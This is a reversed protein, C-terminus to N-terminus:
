CYRVETTVSIGLPHMLSCSVLSEHQGINAYGHHRKCLTCHDQDPKSWWASMYQNEAPGAYYTYTQLNVHPDKTPWTGETPQVTQFQWTVRTLCAVARCPMLTTNDNGM